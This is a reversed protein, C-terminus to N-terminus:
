RDVNFPRLIKLLLGKEYQNMEMYYMLGTFILSFMILKLFMTLMSEEILIYNLSLGLLIVLVVPRSLFFINRWFAPMNLGIKYYYYLNIIIVTSIILAISIGIACGFGGYLKALPISIIISFLAAVVYVTTRFKNMNKAQLIVIGVTQILSIFLSSMLLVVIYYANEYEKGAWFFIFAKGCIIFICLIYSLIIYQLRSIKIMVNSLEDNSIKNTVMITIRPLMVSTIATSFSSYITIIQVAISYVAVQTTGSVIGLIFQGTSWYLKDMIVNLFIFFSYGAIEQLLIFDFNRFYMKIKLHKFCYYVNIFLFSINLVTSVIVMMISGYGFYLLPLVIIPNLIMRFINCVRLFVFKEYAQMISTFISLPFSVAFNFILFIMMIKAKILDENTLTNIFVSDINHYLILGVVVTLIGVALYLLLFMANLSAESKKNGIIRNRATYRVIANGLGMDLISLYGVLAGILSYLGYETQGLFRLMIPTFLLGIGLTVFINVYSLIAGLKLQNVM